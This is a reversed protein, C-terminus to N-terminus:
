PTQLRGRREVTFALEAAAAAHQCAAAACTMRKGKPREVRKGGVPCARPRGRSACLAQLTAAEARARSGSENQLPHGRRGTSRRASSAGRRARRRSGHSGRSSHGSPAVSPMTSQHTRGGSGVCLRDAVRVRARGSASSWGPAGCGAGSESVSLSSRVTLVKWRTAGLTANM